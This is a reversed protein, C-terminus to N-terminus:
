LKVSVSDGGSLIVATHEAGNLRFCLREGAHKKVYRKKVVATVNMIGKREKFKDLQVTGKKARLAGIKKDGRYLLVNKALLLCLLIVAAAILLLVGAGLAIVVPWNLSVTTYYKTNEKTVATRGPDEEAPVTDATNGGGNIDAGGGPNVATGGGGPDPEPLPEPKDSDDIPPKDYVKSYYAVATHSENVNKFTYSGGSVTTKVGDILIYSLTYGDDAKFSFTYDGGPKVNGLGEPSVSGGATRTVYVQLVDDPTLRFLHTGGKEMNFTFSTANRAIVKRNFVDYVTSKQPLTVTREGDFLSHVAIYNNDAYLVDTPNENYIHCGCHKLINRLLAAPICPVASYISTWERGGESMEKVALGALGNEYGAQATHYAIPEASPDDVAIVPALTRYEVAGYTVDALGATLWHNYNSVEVTGMLKRESGATPVIRLNMGTLQELNAIDTTEGDSLGSTFIWIIVNGNKQLKEEIAKREGPTVQATMLMINVKHEPVYGDELDDLTYIDHPAGISYLERRQTYTMAKYLLENTIDTGTYPMYAPSHEDYFVAVDSVSKRELGLSLTMEQMMLSAMEHLQEDTFYNGGLSYFYLGCGKSLAYSFNRKLQEITQEATRTWGVSARADPAEGMIATHNRDDDEAIYVKGHATVTDVPSMFENSYGIEREGYSWPCTIFDISESKLLRQYDTMATGTAFEYTTMNLLYGAYTGVMLRGGVAKKVLDAFYLVADTKMKGMFLEYDIAHRNESASLVTAYEGASRAAIDPVSANEFTVSSDGWAERLADVTGYKEKLWSRFAATGKSSFDGLLTSGSIGWWQWEYTYGGTIKIGVINNAYPQEMLYAIIREIVEGTEERWKQSSFAEKSITGDNLRVCEEPNQDLWWQPPTTDIAVVLKSEPNAALTDLMQRDITETQISGDPMWLEGLTERPLIFPIATDIGGEAFGSMEEPEFQTDREPRSYWLPATPIGNVFFTPKGNYLRVESTTTLTREPQAVKLNGVKNNIFWDSIIAVSNDFQVTYSGEALFDPVQLTFEATFERGVPWDAASGGDAISIVGSCIRSTSNRKWFYISFSNADPLQESLKLKATVEVREGAYVTEEPFTFENSEIKYDSYESNDFDIVGWGGGGVEAYIEANVWGGTSMDYDPKMYNKEDAETWEPNPYEGGVTSDGLSGRAVYVSDDSYFRLSTDNAMKVIGDYLLGYRYINNYLRIAILNRGKQLYEAIDLQSPLSWTDGTRTESYVLEGNIYLDFKDDAAVQIQATEVESDLNIEQRFYYYRENNKQSEILDYEEPHVIWKGVWGFDVVPEGTQKIVIDQLFVEGDGGAKEFKLRYYAASEATFTVVTETASPANELSQSVVEKIPKDAWSYATVTLRGKASGATRYHATLTYVYDTKLIETDYYIGGSDNEGGAVSAEGSTGLVPAGSLAEYKWGGFVGDSSPSAFDEAYVTNGSETYNYYEISDFYADAFKGGIRLMLRVQRVSRSVTYIIRYEQWGSLTDAGNLPREQGVWTQIVNGGADLGEIVAAFAGSVSGRSRMHVVFEIEDGAAVSIPKQMTVTTYNIKNYEKEVHLSYNGRYTVNKDASVKGVGDSTVASWNVPRGGAVYEFDLNPDTIEETETVAANDLYTESIEPNKVSFWIIIYETKSTTKFTGGFEQWDYSGYAYADTLWLWAESEVAVNTGASDEFQRICIRVSGQRTDRTLADYSFTYYTDPKVKLMSSTLYMETDSADLKRVRAAASGDPGAGEAKVTEYAGFSGEEFEGPADPKERREYTGWNLPLRGNEGSEFDLNPDGADGLETVSINDFLFSGDAESSKIEFRVEIFATDGSTSFDASYSHWEGDNSSTFVSNLWQYSSKDTTDYGKENYLRILPMVMIDSGSYKGQFTINYAYNSRAPLRASYIVLSGDNAKLAEALMAGSGDIGGGSSWSMSYDDAETREGPYSIWNLPRNESFDKLEFDFNEPNEEKILSIQSVSASGNEALYSVRMYKAGAPVAFYGDASSQTYEQGNDYSIKLIGGNGNVKAYYIEGGEANFRLSTLAAGSDLSIIGSGDNYDAGGSVSWGPIVLARLNEFDGNSILNRSTDPEGAASMFSGNELVNAKTPDAKDYVVIDDIYFDVGSYGGANIWLYAWQEKTVTFEYSIRTWDAYNVSVNQNAGGSEAWSGLGWALHMLLPDGATHTNGKIYASFVYTHDQQWKEGMNSLAVNVHTNSANNADYDQVFHVAGVNGNGESVLELDATGPMDPDSYDADQWYELSPMSKLPNLAANDILMRDGAAGQFVIRLQVSATNQPTRFNGSVRKWSSDLAGESNLRFDSIPNGDADFYYGTFIYYPSAGVGKIDLSAQYDTNPEAAINVTSLSVWGEGAAASEGKTMELVGGHAEDFSLELTDETSNDSIFWKLEGEEAHAGNFSGNFEDLPLYSYIIDEFGGNALLNNGTVLTFGDEQCFDGKGGLIDKGDSDTVTLKDVYFDSKNNYQSFCFVYLSEGNSTFDYSFETWDEFVSRGQTINTYADNIHANDAFRLVQDPYTVSGKVMMSVTYEKGAEAEPAIIALWMDGEVATNVFHLAGDSEFGEEVTEAYRTATNSWKNGNGDPYFYWEGDSYGAADRDSYIPVASSYKYLFANDATYLDGASSSEGGFTVTLRMYDANEPVTIDGAYEAFDGSIAGSSIVASEGAPEEAEADAFFEAAVLANANGAGSKLSIGTRYRDGGSVRVPESCLEGSGGKLTVGAASGSIGDAESLEGSGSLEWGSFGEFVQDEFASFAPFSLSSLAIILSLLLAAPRKIRSCLGGQM